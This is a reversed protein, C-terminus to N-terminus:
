DPFIIEFLRDDYIKLDPREQKKPFDNRMFEISIGMWQNIREIALSDISDIRGNKYCDVLSLIDNKIGEDLTKAQNLLDFINILPNEGENVIMWVLVSRCNYLYMKVTKKSIEPNDKLSKWNSTAINTYHFKLISNDFDPLGKFIDEKWDIYVIPSLTWERLNPNSRYHLYLAKKIDWGVIDFDDKMVEIVDSKQSLTVYDRQSNRKYIFRVDYDSNEHNFGWARSGSECAYLISVDNEKEIRELESIIQSKM